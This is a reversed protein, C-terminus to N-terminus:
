YGDCVDNEKLLSKAREEFDQYKELIEELYGKIKNDRDKLKDILKQTSYSAMSADKYVHELLEYKEDM